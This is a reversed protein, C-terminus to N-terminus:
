WFHHMAFFGWPSRYLVPGTMLSVDPSHSVRRQLAESFHNLWVCSRSASVFLLGAQDGRAPGAAARGAEAGEVEEWLAVSCILFSSPKPPRHHTVWSHQARPDPCLFHQPRQTDPDATPLTGSNSLKLPIHKAASSSHSSYVHPKRQSRKIWISIQLTLSPHNM